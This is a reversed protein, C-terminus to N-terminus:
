STHKKKTTLKTGKVQGIQKGNLRATQIGERTLESHNKWNMGHIKGHCKSCLIVVNSINNTGGVALPVIHHLHLGNMEGCNVCKRELNEFYFKRNNAFWKRSNEM